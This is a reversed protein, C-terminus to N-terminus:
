FIPPQMNQVYIKTHSKYKYYNNNNYPLGNMSVKQSQQGNMSVNRSQQGNMGALGPNRISSRNWETNSTINIINIQDSHIMAKARYCITKKKLKYM